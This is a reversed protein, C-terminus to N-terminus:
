STMSKGPLFAACMVGQQALPALSCKSAMPVLTGNTSFIHTHLKEEKTFWYFNVGRLRVSVSKVDIFLHLDTMKYCM